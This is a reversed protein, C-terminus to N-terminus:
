PMDSEGRSLLVLIKRIFIGFKASDFWDPSEHRELSSLDTTYDELGFSIDHFNQLADIVGSIKVQTTVNGCGFVGILVKKQDGPRLRKISGPQVTVVGPASITIEVGAGSIWESGANNVLVEILQMRDGSHKQTPRVYQVEIGSGKWISMSFVHLRSASASYTTNPLTVSALTKTSDLASIHEFIHTNNFNTDNRTFYSPMVIEGKFITLFSYFPESRMEAISTSNDTYTFTLNGAGAYWALDGAVLLHVSFYSGPTVPIVQGSCLVNDGGGLGQYGPFYYSVGTKTSKYVGGTPLNEAPYSENATNFAGEGPYLSFGKNNFYSSLDM